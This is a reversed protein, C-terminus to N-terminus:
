MTSAFENLITATSNLEQVTATIEELGSSQNDLILNSDNFRLYIENISDQITNLMSNIQKASEKTSQSLKRIENSVVSFGKGFEGARASEIAANLGLLNTQKAIGEIFSLVEDTKKSNDKTIEIFKQIGSNTEAIKQIGSTMDFLNTSIQSLSDSLTNSLDSMKEKKSLSMGIIMTGSIKDNEFVPVAMTKLPVGFVNKPVIVSIPKKEKLCIDAACGTPIKDGTKSSMKLNECDQVLLFKETNSITFVLEDEFYHQFYPILNYFSQLLKNDEIANIM